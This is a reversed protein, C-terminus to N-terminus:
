SAKMGQIHCLVQQTRTNVRVEFGVKILANIELYTTGSMVAM